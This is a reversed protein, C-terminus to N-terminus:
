RVLVFANEPLVGLMIQVREELLDVDITDSRMGVVKTELAEREKKIDEYELLAVEHQYSLSVLKLYGREGFLLHFSFYLCLCIGAVLFATEKRKTYAQIHSSMFGM